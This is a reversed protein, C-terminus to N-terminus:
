RPGAGPGGPGSSEGAKVPAPLYQYIAARNNYRDAVYIRDFRDIALGLPMWHEGVGHGLSGFGLLLTGDSEFVQVNNFAADAVYLHGQSDVAIGKPRAFLGPSDGLRGIQRVFRGTRDFAQVRFNM